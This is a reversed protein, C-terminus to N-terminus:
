HSEALVINIDIDRTMRPESYISVAIGGLLAYDIEAEELCKAAQKLQYELLNM